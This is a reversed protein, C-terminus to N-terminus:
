QNVCRLDQGGEWGIGGHSQLLTETTRTSTQGERSPNRYNDDPVCVVQKNQLVAVNYATTPARDAGGQHTRLMNHLVCGKTKTGHRGTTGHVPESINWLCKGGGNTCRIFILKVYLKNM